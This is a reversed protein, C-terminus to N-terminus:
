MTGYMAQNRMMQDLLRRDEESLATPGYLSGGTPSQTPMGGLASMAGMEADSIQGLAGGTASTDRMQNMLMAENERVVSNPDFASMEAGRMVSNPDSKDLTPPRIGIPAANVNNLRLLDAMSLPKDQEQHYMNHPM